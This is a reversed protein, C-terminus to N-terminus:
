SINGHDTVIIVNTNKDRRDLFSMLAEDTQKIEHKIEDSDPGHDHGITDINQYYVMSFDFGNKLDTLSDNLYTKFVSLKVSEHNNHSICKEPVIGEFKINCHGWLYM